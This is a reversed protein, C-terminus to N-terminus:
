KVETSPKQEPVLPQPPVSAAQPQPTLPAALQQTLQPLYKVQEIILKEAAIRLLDEKKLYEEKTIIGQIYMQCYYYMGDRYIQLGQSRQTLLMSATAYFSLTNVAASAGEIGELDGTQLAASLQDL